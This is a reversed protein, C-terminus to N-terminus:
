GSRGSELSLGTRVNVGGFVCRAQSPGEHGQLDAGDHLQTVCAASAVAYRRALHAIRTFEGEIVRRECDGGARALFYFFGKGLPM